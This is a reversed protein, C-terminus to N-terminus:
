LEEEFSIQDEEESEDPISIEVHDENYYQVLDMAIFKLLDEFSRLKEEYRFGWWHKQPCLKYRLRMLKTKPNYELGFTYAVKVEKYEPVYKKKSDNKPRSTPKKNKLVKMYDDVTFQFDYIGNFDKSYDAIAKPENILPILAILFTTLALVKDKDLGAEKAFTRLIKYADYSNICDPIKVAPFNEKWELLKAYESNNEILKKVENLYYLMM